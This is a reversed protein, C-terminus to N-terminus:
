LTLKEHSKEKAHAGQRKYLIYMSKMEFLILKNLVFYM